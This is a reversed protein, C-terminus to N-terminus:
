NIIFLTTFTIRAYVFNQTHTCVGVLRRASFTAQRDSELRCNDVMGWVPSPVNNTHLKPITGTTQDYATPAAAARKQVNPRPEMSLTQKPDAIIRETWRGFSQVRRVTAAGWRFQVSCIPYTEVGTQACGKGNFTTPPPSRVISFQHALNRFRAPPYNYVVPLANTRASSESRHSPNNGPAFSAFHPSKKRHYM